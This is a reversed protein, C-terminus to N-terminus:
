YEVIVLGAGGNGGPSGTTTNAGGGGGGGGWGTAPLGTNVGTTGRSNSPGGGDGGRGAVSDADTGYSGGYNIDGGAGAGGVGGAQVTAVTGGMGGAGGTASVYSGFSSTGGNGGSAPTSSAAGAAGVTVAIVTGAFLGSIVKTGRGGAGGGGAALTAHTGGGGGGGIVTAKVMTVGNPVVFTGSAAFPQQTSFGPRLAPLKFPITNASTAAVISGTNIQTQAYVVTVVALPVWGADVAPTVQTTVAAAAGPKATLQVRQTRLTNLAAGSNGPGLYPSAPNAANYYPMVVPDIDAEQFSAEILYNIAQGSTTPATLTLTSSAVNIGMKVLPDVADAPLSGYTNQDVTTLLTVSGPAVQVLMSAPVTPTVALGDVVTSSGLTAGILAGFALMANRNVNLLDTDLPIAGPYVINRDM